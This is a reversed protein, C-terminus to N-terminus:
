DHYDSGGENDGNTYKWMLWFPIGVVSVIFLIQWTFSLLKNKKRGGYRGSRDIYGLGRRFLIYMKRKTYYRGKKFSSCNISYKVFFIPAFTIGMLFCFIGGFWGYVLFNFISFEYNEEFNRMYSRLKEESKM